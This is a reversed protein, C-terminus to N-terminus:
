LNLKILREESRVCSQHKKGREACVNHSLLSLCLSIGLSFEFPFKIKKKKKKKKTQGYLLLHCGSM